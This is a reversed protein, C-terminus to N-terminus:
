STSAETEVKVFSNENLLGAAYRVEIRYAVLNAVPLSVLEGNPGIPVAAEEFYDVTLSNPVVGWIFKNFDGAFGISETSESNIVAYPVGGIVGSTLSTATTVFTPVGSPLTMSQLDILLAETLAIGTVRGQGLIAKRVKIFSERDNVVVTDVDKLSAFNKHGKTDIGASVEDFKVSLSNVGEELMARTVEAKDDKLQKSVTVFRYATVSDLTIGSTPANNIEKQSGEEDQFAAKGNGISPYYVGNGNVTVKKGLTQFASNGKIESTILEGLERPFQFSKRGVFDKNEPM